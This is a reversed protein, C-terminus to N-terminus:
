TGYSSPFFRTVLLLNTCTGVMPQREQNVVFVAYAFVLLKLQHVAEVVNNTDVWNRQLLNGGRKRVGFQMKNHGSTM